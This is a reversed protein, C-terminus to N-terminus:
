VLSKRRLLDNHLKMCFFTNLCTLHVVDIKTIRSTDWMNEEIGETQIIVFVPEHLYKRTFARTTFDFHTLCLRVEGVCNLMTLYYKGYTIDVVPESRDHKVMSTVECNMNTSRVKESSVAALFERLPLLLTVLYQVETDTQLVKVEFKEM